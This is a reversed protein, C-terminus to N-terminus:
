LKRRPKRRSIIMWQKEMAGIIKRKCILLTNTIKFILHQLRTPQTRKFTPRHLAKKLQIYKYTIAYLINKLNVIILNYDM